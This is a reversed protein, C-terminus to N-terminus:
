LNRNGKGGENVAYLQFLYVTNPELDTIYTNTKTIEQVTMWKTDEHRRYEVTYNESVHNTVSLSRWATFVKLVYEIFQIQIPKSPPDVPFM